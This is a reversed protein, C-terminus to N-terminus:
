STDDLPPMVNRALWDCEKLIEEVEAAVGVGKGPIYGCLQNRFRGKIEGAVRIRGARFQAFGYGGM